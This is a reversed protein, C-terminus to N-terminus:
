YYLLHVSSPKEVADIARRLAQNTWKTKNQIAKDDEAAAETVKCNGNNDNRNYNDTDMDMARPSPRLDRGQNDNKAATRPRLRPSRARGTAAM